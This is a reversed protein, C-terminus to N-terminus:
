YGRERDVSNALPRGSELRRYNEVLQPAVAAPYTLSSIHPTIKIKPHAWFPHSDPLPEETFVDLCAGSLRGEDLADLLDQEILHQGRAVNILYAGDPLHKFIGRNLIRDTLPTLPLTCILIDTRALFPVLGDEGAYCDVQSIKKATRSWGAISFGFHGLQNAAHSGLQGMGMIGIRIKEALLPVRPQWNRDVQDQRYHDFHRCHSLVALTIYESMSQAMSPDVVRTVPIDVPLNEDNLVHDVGVGLSAICELNPFRNLVGRPHKWVLVMRIDATDGTEPWVRVEIDPALKHIHKIWSAPKMEETIVLMAM